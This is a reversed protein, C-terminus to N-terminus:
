TAISIVEKGDASRGVTLGLCHPPGLYDVRRELIAAELSDADAPAVPIRVIEVEIM